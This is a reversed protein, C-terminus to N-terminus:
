KVPVASSSLLRAASRATERDTEGTPWDTKGGTVPADVNVPQKTRKV